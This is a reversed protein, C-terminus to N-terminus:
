GALPEVAEVRVLPALRSAFSAAEFAEAPALAGVGRAEGARLAEAGRVIILATLGYVDTGTIVARRGGAPGLAEAVVAFRAKRRSAESPGAPGPVLRLLPAALRAVPALRAASAPARFYSRVTRVDTHRPVSLPECAGWEVTDREGFPFRFRRTTAGFSSEVLRGDVYALHTRGALRAMTRRTGRSPVVGSVSYAVVVEEVRDLGDAALDAALDGPVYDFGFATLLVVGRAAARPGHEEYVQLAFEQEGTTDLYHAGSDIAAEVPAFGVDLFPGALSAVAFAGEFAAVLAARDRADAM